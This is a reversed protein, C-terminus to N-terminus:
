GLIYLKDGHLVKDESLRLELNDEGVLDIFPKVSGRFIGGIEFLGDDTRAYVRFDSRQGKIPKMMQQMVRAQHQKLRSLDNVLYCPYSMKTKEYFDNIQM